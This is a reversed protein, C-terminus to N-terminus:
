LQKRLLTAEGLMPTGGCQDALEKAFEMQGNGLIPIFIESTRTQLVREHIAVALTHEDILRFDAIIPWIVSINGIREIGVAATIGKDDHLAVLHSSASAMQWGLTVLSNDIGTTKYQRWFLDRVADHDNTVKWKTNPEKEQNGSLNIAYQAIAEEVVFGLSELVPGFKQDLVFSIPFPLKSNIGSKGVIADVHHITVSRFFPLSSKVLQLQGTEKLDPTHHAAILAVALRTRDRYIATGGVIENGISSLFFISGELQIFIEAFKRDLPNMDGYLELWIDLENRSMRRTYLTRSIM